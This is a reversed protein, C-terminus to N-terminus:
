NLFYHFSFIVFTSIVFFLSMSLSHTFLSFSLPLSPSLTISTLSLFLFRTYSHTFLHLLCFSNTLNHCPSHRLPTCM